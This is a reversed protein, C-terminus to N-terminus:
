HAYITCRLFSYFVHALSLKPKMLWKAALTDRFCLTLSSPTIVFCVVVSLSLFFKFSLLVANVMSGYIDMKVSPFGSLSNANKLNGPTFRM